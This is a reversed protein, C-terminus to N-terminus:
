GIQVHTGETFLYFFFFVTLTWIYLSRVTATEATAEQQTLNLLCYSANSCKIRFALYRKYKKRRTVSSLGAM